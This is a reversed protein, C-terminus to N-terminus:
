TNGEQCSYFKFMWAAFNDKAKHQGIGYCARRRWALVPLNGEPAKGSFSLEEYYQWNKDKDLWGVRDCFDTYEYNVEQWIRQQINLGFRGHSYYEWLQNITCIDTVPLNNIDDLSLSGEEKRWALQLIIEWTIEDANRWKEKSLLQMLPKYDIGSESLSPTPQSLSAITNELNALSRSIAEPNLEELRYIVRDLQSQLYAREIAGQNLENELYNLRSFLEKKSKKKCSNKASYKTNKDLQNESFSETYKQWMQQAWYLRKYEKQSFLQNLSDDSINPLSSLEWGCISCFDPLEREYQAACVPCNYM